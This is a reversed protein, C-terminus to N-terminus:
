LGGREQGLPMTALTGMPWVTDAHGLVLIQGRKKSGPLAFEASMHGHRFNRIKAMAAVESSILAVFNALAAPSDSPSECEVMRRILAIINAQNAQAYALLPDM